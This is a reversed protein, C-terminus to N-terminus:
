KFFILRLSAFLLLIGFMRRLVINSINNAFNAGIYGGLLIGAAIFVAMLLKANGSQYYRFAAFITVCPVMAALATGQAQHQTLGFLLVLAPVMVAGGGIGFLGSAVGALIGLLMYLIPYM